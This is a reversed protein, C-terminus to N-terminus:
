SVIEAGGCSHIYGEGFVTDVHWTESKPVHDEFLTMLAGATDNTIVLCRTRTVWSETTEGERYLYANDISPSRCNINFLVTPRCKFKTGAKM